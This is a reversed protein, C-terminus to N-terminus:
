QVKFGCNFKMSMLCYLVCLTLLLKLFPLPFSFIHFQGSFHTTKVYIYIPKTIYQYIVVVVFDALCIEHM